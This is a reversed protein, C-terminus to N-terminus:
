PIFVCGSRNFIHERGGIRDLPRFNKGRSLRHGVIFRGGNTAIGCRDTPPHRRSVNAFAARRKRQIGVDAVGCALRDDGVLASTRVSLLLLIVGAGRADAALHRRVAAVAAAGYLADGCRLANRGMGAIREDAEVQKLGTGVAVLTNKPQILVEESTIDRDTEQGNTYTVDAHRLLEGNQGQILVRQVGAPLAPDSCYVTECPMTVTYIQEQQFHRSIRLVMGDSTKQEPPLSIKDGEEVTLELRELLQAVTEGYSVVEQVQGYYDVTIKQQRLVQLVPGDENEELKLRDQSGLRIGAEELIALPEKEATTHILIRDRDQIIFTTKRSCLLLGTMLVLAAAAVM